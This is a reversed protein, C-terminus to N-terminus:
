EFMSIKLTPFISNRIRRGKETVISRTLLGTKTLFPISNSKKIENEDKSHLQMDLEEIKGKRLSNPVFQGLFM